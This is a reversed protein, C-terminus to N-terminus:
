PRYAALEGAPEGWQMHRGGIRMVLLVEGIDEASEVVDEYPRVLEQTALVLMGERILVHDANILSKTRQRLAILKDLDQQARQRKKEWRIFKRDTGWFNAWSDTVDTRFDYYAERFRAEAYEIEREAAAINVETKRLRKDADETDAVVFVKEVVDGAKVRVLDQEDIATRYGEGRYPFLEDGRAEVKTYYESPLSIPVFALRQFTAAARSNAHRVVLEGYISAGPVGEATTYKFEYRGPALNYMCAEEPSRELRDGFAGPSQIMRSSGPGAARIEVMAGPPAYFLLQTRCPDGWGNKVTQCCSTAPQGCCGAGALLALGALVVFATRCISRYGPDCDAILM